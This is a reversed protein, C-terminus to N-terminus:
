IGIEKRCSYVHICCNDHKLGMLSDMAVNDVHEYLSKKLSM